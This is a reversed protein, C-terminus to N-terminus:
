GERCDCAEPPEMQDSDFQDGIHLGRWSAESIWHITPKKNRGVAQVTVTYRTCGGKRSSRAHPCRSAQIATIEGEKSPSRICAKLGLLASALYAVSALVLWSSRDTSLAIGALVLAVGTNGMVLVSDLPRRDIYQSSM